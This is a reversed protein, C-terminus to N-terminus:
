KDRKEYFYVHVEDFNVKWKECTQYIEQESMIHAVESHFVINGNKSYAKLITKEETRVHPYIDPVHPM